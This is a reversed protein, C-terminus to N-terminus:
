ICKKKNYVMPPRFAVPKKKKRPLFYYSLCIILCGLVTIPPMIWRQNAPLAYQVCAALLISIAGQATKGFLYPWIDLNADEVVSWTQLAVCVGGFSLFGCFLLMRLGLSTVSVLSCSGNSLEIICYLIIRSETPLLWLIWRDLFTILVRFIVIWGCVFAMSFIAQKLAEPLSIKPYEQKAQIVEGSAPTLMGTLIASLIHIIWILLCLKASGFLTYGIGFIFAPGSNNCFPLMRRAQNESVQGNRYSQATLKAGIPYGGLLGILFISEAGEPIHLLKGLPRLFRFTYAGLGSILLSSLFFFPFLSPIVTQLCLNIGEIAGLIATKADLIIVIMAMSPLFVKWFNKMRNMPIVEFSEIDGHLFVDGM